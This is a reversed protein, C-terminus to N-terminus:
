TRSTHAAVPRFPWTRTAGALEEAFRATTRNKTKVWLREGPRYREQERKAVVGELGRECMAEFLAEGDGFAPMVVAYPADLKLADLLKRRERYSERTTPEGDFALVDFAVYTIPISDRSYLMRQCLRHFDPHAADDFAVLEGDLQVNPPLAQELEPLMPTMNWGRRSRARFRDHTCVLCRFGDLKPEYRWGDGTPIAGPRALMPEPLALLCLGLSIQALRNRSSAARTIRAALAFKPM